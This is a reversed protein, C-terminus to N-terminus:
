NAKKNIIDILSIYRKGSIWEKKELASYKLIFLTTDPKKLILLEIPPDSICNFIFEPYKEISRFELPTKEYKAYIFNNKTIIKYINYGIHVDINKVQRYIPYLLINPFPYKNNVLTGQSKIFNNNDEKTLYNNIKIDKIEVKNYRNLEVICIEETGIRYFEIYSNSRSVWYNGSIIKKQYSENFVWLYRYKFVKEEIFGYYFHNVFFLVIAIVIISIAVTAMSYAIWNIIKSRNPQM